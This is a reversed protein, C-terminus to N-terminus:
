RWWLDSEERLMRIRGENWAIFAAWRQKPHWLHAAKM